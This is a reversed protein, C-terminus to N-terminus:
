AVGLFVQAWGLGAFKDARIIWIYDNLLFEFLELGKFPIIFETILLKPIQSVCELRALLGLQWRFYLISTFPITILAMTTTDLYPRITGAVVTIEYIVFLLAKSAYYVWITVDIKAIPLVVFWIALTGVEMDITRVVLSVPYIVLMMTHALFEPRISCHVFALVTITLLM